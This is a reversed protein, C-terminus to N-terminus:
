MLMLKTGFIKHELKQELSQVVSFFGFLSHYLMHDIIDESVQLIKYHHTYSVFRFIPAYPFDTVEFWM